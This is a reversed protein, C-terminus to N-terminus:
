RRLAALARTHAPLHHSAHAMLMRIWPVADDMVIKGDDIVRADVLQQGQAATMAGAAAMLADAGTRVEILLGDWGLRDAYARLTTEESVTANDYPQSIGRAVALTVQTLLGDNAAIHALILPASWGAAPDFFGGAAAEALLADYSAALALAVM